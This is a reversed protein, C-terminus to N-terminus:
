RRDGLAYVVCAEDHHVEVCRAELHERLGDYHELWWFGTGPLVFHSGGRERLTELQAIADSSDAPYLGAYCGDETQPFHLGRRGDLELLEDDGKSSSSSRRTM